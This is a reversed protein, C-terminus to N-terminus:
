RKAPAFRCGTACAGALHPPRQRRPHQDPLRRQGAGQHAGLWRARDARLRPDRAHLGHRRIRLQRPRARRRDPLSVPKELRMFRAPRQDATRARRIPWRARHEPQRAHRRRRLRLCQPHRPRRRGRCVLTPDLDLGPLKDLIVAHCRHAAARRGRRHGDRRRGAADGAAAHEAGPDFMWVSYLPPASQVARIPSRASRHLARHHEPHRNCRAAPVAVLEGPHPEHWGVAPVRFQLPRGPSPGPVTRVDNPTARTQAPGTMGANALAAAHERRLTNADIIILDGGFDVDTVRASSRWSAAARCRARAARVRDATNRRHRDNHSNAGYHLQLDRATPTRPTSTSATTAPPAIGAASCCAATRLCRRAELDHSQNFSIQHIGTGDANMVHLVFASESREENQAEFQPKGEDLLIAKSQKQRTSSFM